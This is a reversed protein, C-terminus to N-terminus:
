TGISFAFQCFKMGCKKLGISALTTKFPGIKKKRCIEWLMGLFEVNHWFDSGTFFMKEVELQCLLKVLQMTQASRSMSHEIMTLTLLQYNYWMYHIYYYCQLITKRIKFELTLLWCVFNVKFYCVLNVVTPAKIFVFM